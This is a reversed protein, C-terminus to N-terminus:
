LSNQSNERLFECTNGEYGLFSRAKLLINRSEPQLKDPFKKVLVPIHRTQSM